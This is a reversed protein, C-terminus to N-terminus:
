FTWLIALNWVGFAGTSGVFKPSQLSSSQLKNQSKFKSSPAEGIHRSLHFVALQRSYVRIPLLIETRPRIVWGSWQRANADMRPQGSGNEGMGCQTTTRRRTGPRM